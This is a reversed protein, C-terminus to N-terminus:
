EDRLRWLGADSDLEAIEELKVITHPLTLGAREWWSAEIVVDAEAPAEAALNWRSWM